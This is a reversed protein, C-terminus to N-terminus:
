RRMIYQYFFSDEYADAIYHKLSGADIISELQNQIYEARPLTLTYYVSRTIENASAWFGICLCVMVLKKRWRGQPGANLSGDLCCQLVMVMLLFLAPLSARMCFDNIGESRHLPILTLEILTVWYFRRHMAAKGLALFYVYVEMVLLAAYCIAVKYFPAGSRTFVFGGGQVVVGTATSNQLYYSGYTLLMLAPILINAPTLAARIKGAFTQKEANLPKLIATIAIPVLGVTAFPSCAFSLASLAAICKSSTLLLLLGMIIWVPVAQNFVWYLQTTMGSYQFYSAWWEMHKTFSIYRHLITWGVVDLGSFLMMVCLILKSYTKLFRVLLYFAAWVNCLTWFFLLTQGFDISCGTMKVVAAAPLWWSVYYVLQRPPGGDVPAYFVPWDYNCLDQFTANRAGWDGNQFTWGGAGSFFVWVTIVAFAFLWFGRNKTISVEPHPDIDRMVCVSGYVLLATGALAIPLRTWGFLFIVIPLIVCGLAFGIM